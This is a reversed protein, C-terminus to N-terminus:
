IRFEEIVCEHVKSKKDYNIGVLLLNGQYDVLSEPYNREKIQAIAGVASKDWKLEVILAPKDLHKLRPIFVLDAFGKGTPFERVITYYNQASFLALNLICSLANEDNYKFIAANKTHVEEVGSAVSKEDKQWLSRLLSESNQLAEVAIWDLDKVANKFESRVEANPIRVSKQHYDYSLYGLHVLLALVDDASSFRAMDNKFTYADITLSTGGILQTVKERLGDYDAKIYVQLAEYTETSNWYNDCQKSILSATVSKPNYIPNGMESFYGNYWAKMESFDMEFESCLQEVETDTFGFYNEFPAPRIMSYEAFMNLASHTGYKKVPLIGTMYALGVYEKDKFWLRLFDLYKQQSNTDNKYVRFLCDWEDILFVFPNETVAYVSELAEIFNKSEDLPILPYEKQLLSVISDALTELMEDVTKSLSLVDQMNVFFVDHQNRHEKFDDAKSIELDAFLSTSDAGRSYYASLMNLGMTKGFRRPRSLCVFREETFFRENMLSILGSKDVYIKSRRSMRFKGNGPNLFMSM